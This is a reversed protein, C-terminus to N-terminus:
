EYLIDYSDDIYQEISNFRRLIHDDFLALRPHCATIQEDHHKNYGIYRM